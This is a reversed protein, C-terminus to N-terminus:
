TFSSVSVLSIRFPYSGWVRWATISSTTIFIQLFARPAFALGTCGLKARTKTLNQLM